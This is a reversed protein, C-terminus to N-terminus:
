AAPAVRASPRSDAPFAGPVPVAHALWFLSLRRNKLSPKVVMGPAAALVPTSTRSSAFASLVVPAGFIHRCSEHFPPEEQIAAL